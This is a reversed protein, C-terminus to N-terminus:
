LTLDCQGEYVEDDTTVKPMFFESTPVPTHGARVGIVRCFGTVTVIVESEM